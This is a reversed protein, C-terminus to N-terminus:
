MEMYLEILEEFYESKMTFNRIKRLAKALIQRARERGVHFQNGVDQLTTKKEDLYYMNIATRERETLHGMIEKDFVNMFFERDLDYITM